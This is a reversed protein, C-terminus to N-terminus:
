PQLLLLSNIAPSLKGAESEPPDPKAVARVVTTELINWLSKEKPVCDQKYYWWFYGGVYYEEDYTISYYREIYERKKSAKETGTEGFGLKANPFIAHLRDFVTKWEEKTYTVGECDDEYYSFFVYDLGNKMAASINSGIWAFMEQEPKDYYCAKNYYFNIATTKGRNKALAYAGEIKARVDASSGLWDGNVENGIEWIDVQEGLTDLYEETRDLYQQVSYGAVYFSDLIEGMVYSASHINSVPAIYDVAAVNEDFVVRTTPKVTHSALADHITSQETWPDDITIGFMYPVAAANNCVTAFLTGWACITLVFSIHFFQM